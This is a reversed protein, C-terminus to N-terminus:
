GGPVEIGTSGVAQAKAQAGNFNVGDSHIKRTNSPARDPLHDLRNEDVDTNAKSAWHGEFRRGCSM